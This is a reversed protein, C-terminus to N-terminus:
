ATAITSPLLGVATSITDRPVSTSVRASRSSSGRAPGLHLIAGLRLDPEGLRRAVNSLRSSRRRYLRRGPKPSGGDGLKESPSLLNIRPPAYRGSVLGRLLGAALRAATVSGAGAASRSPSGPSPGRRLYGACSWGATRCAAQEPSVPWCGRRDPRRALRLPAGARHERRATGARSAARRQSPSRTSGAAM